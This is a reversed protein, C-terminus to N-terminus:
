KALARVVFAIGMLSLLVFCVFFFAVMWVPMPEGHGPLRLKHPPAPTDSPDRPVADGAAETASTIEAWPSTDAAVTRAVPQPVRGTLYGGEYAPYAPYVPMDFNVAGDVPLAVPVCAAGLHQLLETASAFRDNPNAALLRQVIATVAPPVDPRLQGLPPTERGARGTLLFYFVRGLSYLDARHDARRARGSLVEPAAFEGEASAKPLGFDAIKVVPLASPTPRALLLNAPKLDRHPMGREHAHELGTAIQRVFECAEAVPLPGRSKVLAGLDPGDVFELVLCFRDNWESADYATVINTHALKGADRVAGCLAERHEATHTMESSLVKIAVTRHMTRHKAKYVCSVSGRGVQELIVYPGLVFGDTRGALLRDAQFRTLVGAAVLADAADTASGSAAVTKAKALQAASLLEAAVLADLFGLRDLPAVAAPASM